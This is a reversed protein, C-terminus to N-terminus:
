GPKRAHLAITVSHLDAPMDIMSRFVHTVSTFQSIPREMLNIGAEMAAKGFRMRAAPDVDWVKGPEMM